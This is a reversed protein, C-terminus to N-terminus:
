RHRRTQVPRKPAGQQRSFLKAGQQEHMREVAQMGNASSVSKRRTEARSSSLRTRQEPLDPRRRKGRLRGVIERQMQPM